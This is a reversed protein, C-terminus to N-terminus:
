LLSSLFDKGKLMSLFVIALLFNAFTTTTYGVCNLVTFPNFLYVSMVYIPATQFDSKSLLIKDVGKAYDKSERAQTEEQVCLIILWQKKTKM